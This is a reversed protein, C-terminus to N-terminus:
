PLVVTVPTSSNDNYPAQGVPAGTTNTYGADARFNSVTWTGTTSVGAKFSLMTPKVWTANVGVHTHCGVCAENAGKLLTENTASANMVFEGHVEASAGNAAYTTGFISIATPASAYLYGMGASDGHCDLCMPAVAAHLQGAGGGIELSPNKSIEADVHCAICGDSNDFGGTMHPSGTVMNDMQARVDAHCKM